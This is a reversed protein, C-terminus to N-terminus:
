MHQHEHETTPIAYQVLYWPMDTCMGDVIGGYWLPYIILHGPRSASTSPRPAAEAGRAPPSIYGEVLSSWRVCFKPFKQAKKALFTSQQARHGGPYYRCLTETYERATVIVPDSM